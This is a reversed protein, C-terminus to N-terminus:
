SIKQNFPFKCKKCIVLYTNPLICYYSAKGCDPCQLHKSYIRFYNEIRRKLMIVLAIAGIGKDLVLLCHYYEFLQVISRQDDYKLENRNNYDRVRISGDELITMHKHACSNRVHILVKLAERPLFPPTRSNNNYIQFIDRLAHLPHGRRECRYLHKEIYVCKRKFLEYFGIYYVQFIRLREEIPIKEDYLIEPFNYKRIIDVNENLLSRAAEFDPEPILSDSYLTNLFNRSLLSENPLFRKTLYLFWNIFIDHTEQIIRGEDLLIQSFFTNIIFVAFADYWDLPNFQKTNEVLAWFSAQVKDLSFIEYKEFFEKFFKEVVQDLQERYYRLDTFEKIIPFPNRLFNM